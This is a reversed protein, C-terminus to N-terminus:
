MDHVKQEQTLWVLYVVVGIREVNFTTQIVRDILAM